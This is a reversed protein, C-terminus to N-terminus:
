LLLLFVTELIIRKMYVTHKKPNGCNKNDIRICFSILYRERSLFVVERAKMEPYIVFSPPIWLFM